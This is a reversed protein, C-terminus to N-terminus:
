ERKIMGILLIFLGIVGLIVGVICYSVWHPLTLSIGEVLGSSIFIVGLLFFSVATFTFVMQRVIKKVERGVLNQFFSLIAGFIASM